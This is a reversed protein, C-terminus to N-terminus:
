HRRSSTGKGAVLIVLFTNLLIQDTVTTNPGLLMCVLTPLAIRVPLVGSVLFNHSLIWGITNFLGMEMEPHFMPTLLTAGEFM